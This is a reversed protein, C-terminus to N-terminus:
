CAGPNWHVIFSAVNVYKEKTCRMDCADQRALLTLTLALEICTGLRVRHVTSRSNM